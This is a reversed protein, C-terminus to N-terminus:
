LLSHSLNRDASEAYLTDEFEVRYRKHEDRSKCHRLGVGNSLRIM